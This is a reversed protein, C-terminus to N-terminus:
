LYHLFIFSQSPIEAHTQPQATHEHMATHPADLYEETTISSPILGSALNQLVRLTSLNYKAAEGLVLLAAAGDIRSFSAMLTGVFPPLLM